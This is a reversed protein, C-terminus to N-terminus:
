SVISEGIFKRISIFSGLLGLLIGGTVVMPYFMPALLLRDTIELSLFQAFAELLVYITTSALIGGILGQLIGEILFPIRIFMRTAGVLKMTQIIRRKSYIALRITNAVLFIASVSVIFALVIGVAFLIKTRKEIFKLLDKHYVVDDVGPLDLLQVYVGELYEFTKYEDKLQVKFSAPLPNYDLIDHIDEGFEERFIRSAEEKSVYTISAIGQVNIISDKLADVKKKTVPDELFVELEVKERIMHVVHVANTTLIVFLGLLILSVTITTISVAMSLKARQFGSLSEKVTYLLNM